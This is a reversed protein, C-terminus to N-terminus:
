EREEWWKRQPGCRQKLGMFNDTHTEAVISWGIGSKDRSTRFCRDEYRNADAFHVVKWHRCTECTRATM